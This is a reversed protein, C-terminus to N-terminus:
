SLSPSSLGEGRNSLRTTDQFVTKSIDLTFSYVAGGSGSAASNQEFTSEAITLTSDTWGFIGGGDDAASNAEFTSDSITLTSDRWGYVGGGDIGASNAEFTSDSITLTSDTWGFFVVM